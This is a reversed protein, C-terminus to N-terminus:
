GFHTHLIIGGFIKGTRLLRPGTPCGDDEVEKSGRHRGRPWMPNVLSSGVSPPGLLRHGHQATKFDCGYSPGGQNIVAPPRGRRPPKVGKRRGSPPFDVYPVIFGSTVLGRRVPMRHFLSNQSVSYTTLNASRSAIWKVEIFRRPKSADSLRDNIREPPTSDKFRLRSVTLRNSIVSM